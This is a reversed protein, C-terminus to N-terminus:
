DLPYTMEFTRKELKQLAEGVLYLVCPRFELQRVGLCCRGIVCTPHCCTGEDLGLALKAQFLSFPETWYLQNVVPRLKPWCYVVGKKPFWARHIKSGDHLRRVTSLLGGSDINPLGRKVIVLQLGLCAM